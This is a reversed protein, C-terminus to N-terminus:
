CVPIEIVKNKSPFNIDKYNINDLFTKLKQYNTIKLDYSIILKNYSPTLNIIGEIKKKQIEDTLYRFLNIVKSNTEKNVIDGFDCYLATDGLNIVKKIM